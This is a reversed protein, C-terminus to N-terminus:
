HCCPVSAFAVRAGLSHYAMNPVAAIFTALACKLIDRFSTSCIHCLPMSEDQRGHAGCNERRVVKEPMAIGVRRLSERVKMSYTHSARAQTCETSRTQWCRRRRYWQSNRVFRNSPTWRFLTRHCCVARAARVGGVGCLVNACHFAKKSLTAPLTRICSVTLLLEKIPSDNLRQLAPESLVGHSCAAYVDTAGYEVLQKAALCLTGATDVMDDVIVCKKGQVDGVLIMQSVENAKERKKSFIALDAGLKKSLSEARKAGGADPSVIVIDDGTGTESVKARIHDQLLPMAYLNDIPYSVFGQLQSAHLDVTIVRDAGALELMDAVLKATIPSRSKDKKDQRAYGFLPMIATIRSAGGRRIADMMVLLEMLYENPCPNCTSQIIFVDCDRVSDHIICGTEGNKFNSTSHSSLPMGLEAAIDQALQPHSSGAYLRLPGHAKRMMVQGKGSGELLVRVQDRQSTKELSAPESVLCSYGGAAIGIATAGVYHLRSLRGCAATAATRARLLARPFIRGVGM